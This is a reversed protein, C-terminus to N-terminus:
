SGSALTEFFGELKEKMQADSVFSPDLIDMDLVLTPIGVKERLADKVTRIMACSTRCGIHAWYIAGQAKFEVADQIIDPVMGEDAPGHM